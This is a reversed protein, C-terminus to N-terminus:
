VNTRNNNEYSSKQIKIEGYLVNDVRTFTVVDPHEEIYLAICGALWEKEKQHNILFEIAAERDINFAAMVKNIENEDIEKGQAIRIIEM